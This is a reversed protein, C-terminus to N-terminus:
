LYDSDAFTNQLSTGTFAFLYALGIVMGPITNTVLAISEIVSKLTGSVTSRATVLAAGYSLLTGALATIVAVMLSNTYVGLLTNDEFVARVHEMTFSIRYPWEDVFPVVFMVAFVSFVGLLILASLVAFAADRKRGKKLEIPSIKNYRVNYKELIHLVTISM